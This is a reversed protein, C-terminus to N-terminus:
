GNSVVLEPGLEGMLTRTGSALASGNFNGKAGTTGGTSDKAAITVYATTSEIRNKVTALTSLAQSSDAGVHVNEYSGGVDGLYDM